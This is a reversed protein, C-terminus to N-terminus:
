RSCDTIIYSMNPRPGSYYSYSITSWQLSPSSNSEFTSTNTFLSHGQIERYMYFIFRGNSAPSPCTLFFNKINGGQCIGRLPHAFPIGLDSNTVLTSSVDYLYIRGFEVGPTVDDYKLVCVNNDYFTLGSPPLGPLSFLQIALGTTPNISAVISPLGTRSFIGYFVVNSNNDLGYEIKHLEWGDAAAAFPANVVLDNVINYYNTGDFNAQFIFHQSGTYSLAIQEAPTYGPSKCAAGALGTLQVGSIKIQLGGLFFPNYIEFTYPPLSSPGVLTVVDVPPSTFVTSGWIPHNMQPISFFGDQLYSIRATEGTPILIATAPYPSGYGTFYIINLTLLVLIRKM